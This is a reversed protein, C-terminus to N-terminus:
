RIQLSNVPNKGFTYGLSLMSAFNSGLQRDNYHQYLPLEVLLSLQLEPTFAFSLQPVWFLKQSGTPFIQERGEPLPIGVGTSPRSDRGRFEARVQQIMVWRESFAYSGFGSLMFFHGFQYQDLSRGKLELRTSAFTRLKGFGKYVFLTQVLEYAGTTPQLDRPLIAGGDKQEANGLPAKFGVGASVEWDKQLDRLLNLRILVNLDTLGRGTQTAPLIGEVYRQTKNLFYGTEAEVTLRESLGYSLNIGVHNFNGDQIFSTTSVQSGEFYRGAYGYRYNVFLRFTEADNVGLASTGGIPNGPSCCQAALDLSAILLLSLAFLLKNM